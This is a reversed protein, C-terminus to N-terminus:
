SLPAVRQVQANSLKDLVMKIAKLSLGFSALDGEQEHPYGSLNTLTNFVANEAIPECLNEPWQAAVQRLDDRSLGFLTQFEWEPFFPGSVAADFCSKVVEVDQPELVRLASM